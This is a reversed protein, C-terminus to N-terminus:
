VNSGPYILCAKSYVVIPVIVTLERNEETDLWTELDTLQEANALPFRNSVSQCITRNNQISPNAHLLANIDENIKVFQTAVFSQFRYM